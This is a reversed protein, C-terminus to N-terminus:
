LESYFSFSAVIYEITSTIKAAFILMIYFIYKYLICNHLIYKEVIKYVTHTYHRSLKYYETYSEMFSIMITGRDSRFDM